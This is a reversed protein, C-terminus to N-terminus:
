AQVSECAAALYRWALERTEKHASDEYAKLATYLSQLAPIIEQAEDLSPLENVFKDAFTKSPEILLLLQQNAKEEIPVGIRRLNERKPHKAGM